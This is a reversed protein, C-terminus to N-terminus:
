ANRFVLAINAQSLSSGTQVIGSLSYAGALGTSAASYVGMGSLLNVSANTNSGVEAYPIGSQMINGGMMSFTQALNTTSLGVSSTATIFNFGVIYEGQTMNVNVPVSLPMVKGVTLDTLGGTNSAYTWTTQTSGSSLSSLSAVNRTFVGAYMSVAIACTNTTASSAGSHSVLADIRTATVPVPVSMYQFTISANGFASIGTLNDASPVFYRTLAQNGVSITSGATSVTLGSAGVLSSTAPASLEWTGNTWGGSLAGGLTVSLSRADYTSSSSAGTSNNVNYIALSQNTQNAASATITMSGANTSGSLTINNGGAWVVQGTVVGTNGATNGINSLGESFQTLAVTNPASIVLSGASLGVSIAGAGDISFNTGAISGSSSQATTNGVGYISLTGAGAAGGGGPSRLSM